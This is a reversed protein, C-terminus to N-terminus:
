PAIMRNDAGELKVASLKNKIASMWAAQVCPPSQSYRYQIGNTKCWIGNLWFCKHRHKVPYIADKCQEWGRWLILGLAKTPAAEQAPLGLQITLVGSYPLGQQEYKLLPSSPEYYQSLKGVTVRYCFQSNFRIGLNMHLLWSNARQQGKFKGKGHSKKQRM